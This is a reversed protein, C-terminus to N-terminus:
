STVFRIFDSADKEMDGARREKMDAELRPVAHREDALKWGSLHGAKAIQHRYGLRAISDFHAQYKLTEFVVEAGPAMVSAIVSEQQMKGFLEPAAARPPKRVKSNGQPRFPADGEANLKFEEMIPVTAMSGIFARHFIGAYKPKKLTEYLPGALLVVEVGEFGPSLPPWSVQKKRSARGRAPYGGESGNKATEDIVEVVKGQSKMDELPSAYPFIDEEPKEPPLHYIKGTDMESLYATVNFEAVDTETHRYQSGGIKFLRPWDEPNTATCFTHYPSNIIDGWFGRVQITTGKNRDRGETYSALSKNPTNYSALRTEFAVGTFCFEKYHFWNIVGAKNKIHTQYDYDMANKRYDYRDRYYGRCRQERLAEIDFDVDKLWGKFVDQVFDRDKFKLQSLDILQALPHTSDDTMIEIFEKAIEELYTNDRERVLTNGLLSLFLEMRERVPLSTNNM